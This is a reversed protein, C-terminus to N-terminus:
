QYVWLDYSAKEDLSLEDYNYQAKLENVSAEYWALQEDEAAESLDDIKGYHDKRGQYTLQLPSTQLLEEYKIDFWQNLAQQPGSSEPATGESCSSLLFAFTVIATSFLIKLKSMPSTFS